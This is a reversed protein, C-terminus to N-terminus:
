INKNVKIPAKLSISEKAVTAGKKVINLAGSSIDFIKKNFNNLKEFVLKSLLENIKDKEKNKAATTKIEPKILDVPKHNFTLIDDYIPSSYLVSANWSDKYMGNSSIILSFLALLIM